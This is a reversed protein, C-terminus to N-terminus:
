GTAVRSSTGVSRVASITDGSCNRVRQRIMQAAHRKAEPTTREERAVVYASGDFAVVFFMAREDLLAIARAVAGAVSEIRAGTMSGSKDLIFGVVLDGTAKLNADATVSVIADVRTTRPALHRNQFAEVKFSM